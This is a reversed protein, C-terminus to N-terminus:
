AGRIDDPTGRKNDITPIPVKERTEVTDRVKTKYGTGVGTCVKEDQNGGM